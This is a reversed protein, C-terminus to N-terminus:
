SSKDSPTRLRPGMIDFKFGVAGKLFLGWARKVVRFHLAARLPAFGRGMKGM